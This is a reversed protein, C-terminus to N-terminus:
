SASRNPSRDRGGSDADRAGAASIGDGRRAEPRALARVVTGGDTLLRRVDEPLCDVLLAVGVLRAGASDVLARAARLTGGSETWDDVLVARTGPPLAAAHAWLEGDGTPATVTAHPGQFFFRRDRCVPAFPVRLREAVPPGLLVGGPDPGLVVDADPLGTALADAVASMDAPVRLLPWLDTAGGRWQLRSEVAGAGPSASAAVLRTM